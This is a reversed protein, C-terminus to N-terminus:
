SLDIHWFWDYFPITHHAGDDPELVAFEALFDDGDHIHVADPFWPDTLSSTLSFFLNVSRYSLCHLQYVPLRLKGIIGTEVWANDTNRPDDM